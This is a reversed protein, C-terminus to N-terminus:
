ATLRRCGGTLLCHGPRRTRRQRDQDLRHNHRRPARRGPCAGRRPGPLRETSVTQVIVLKYQLCNTYRREARRRVGRSPLGGCLQHSDPAPRSRGGTGAFEFDGSLESGFGSVRVGFFGPGNGSWPRHGADVSPHTIPSPCMRRQTSLSRSAQRSAAPGPGSGSRSMTPLSQCTALSENCSWSTGAPWRATQWRGPPGPGDPQTEPAPPRAQCDRPYGDTTPREPTRCPGAVRRIHLICTSGGGHRLRRVPM